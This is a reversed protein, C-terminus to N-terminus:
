GRSNYDEDFDEEDNKEIFPIFFVFKTGQGYATVLQINLGEGYFMKMRTIVNSIGIGIDKRSVDMPNEIIDRIADARERRMGIGNDSIVLKLRDEYLEGIIEIRGKKHVGEFGHLISNEVFPQLMLKICPWNQIEAPVDIWYYFLDELRFKQLFLYQEIWALEQYLRIDEVKQNFTYRLINSLRKILISINHNGAEIAEFNIVGLTNHIFHANIQSKLAEREAEQKKKMYVYKEQHYVELKERMDRLANIMKNYEGALQWIEHLGEIDIMDGYINGKKVKSISDSIEGVPKLVIWEVMIILFIFILFLIIGYFFIGRNYIKDVEALLQVENIAINLRWGLKGVPLSINELNNNLLYDRRNEGIFPRTNHFVINDNRDTIYGYAIDSSDEHVVDLFQGLVQADFSVVISHSVQEFKANGKLPFALHFLRLNNNSPHTVPYTEPVYRPIINQNLLFFVERNIDLLIEQNDDNWLGGDTYDYRDSQFLLGDGTVIAISSIWQSYHTYRTLLQDLSRRITPQNAETTDCLRVLQYLENDVAIEAGLQIFERILFNVNKNVSSLVTHETQYTRNKLYNIYADKLYTQMLFIVLLLFIAIATALYCWLHSRYYRKFKTWIKYISKM